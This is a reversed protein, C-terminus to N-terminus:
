LLWYTLTDNLGAFLLVLGAVPRVWATARRTGALVPQLTGAGLAIAASLGLLPLATGLAFLAPYVVGVPSTLALPITLVFFLLFLTPCFAFSFAAGLLFAGGTGGGARAEIWDALGQGISFHLPVLGLFYLGLAIMLPGLAKRVAVIAYVPVLERGAVIVVLGVATYVLMKGAVYAIASRAVAARGGVKAAARAVYALAGASTTLQCPATAGILGFVLASLVPLGIADSADRLPGAVAANLASLAAYWEVVFERM